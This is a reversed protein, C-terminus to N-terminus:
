QPDEAGKWQAQTLYFEEALPSLHRIMFGREKDERVGFVFRIKRDPLLERLALSLAKSGAPNHAVDLLVLPSERVVQLRGPWHVLNFGTHVAEFSIQWGINRMVQVALLATMGNRVQHRGALSLHFQGCDKGEFKVLLDTGGLSVKQVQWSLEEDVLRLPAKQRLCIRRIVGLPTKRTEACVVPIGEKVIGAKERAIKDLRTGLWQTHERSINTIVVVDPLLVNTADLRGGLGVEVVAVDVKRARFHEFAMATVAEFYTARLERVRPRVQKWLRVVGGPSILKGDVRIRERFDVLHPSTYLGVRFGAAQLVAALCAATSGKGNSGALHISPFTHHPDDLSKLLSFVNHLGLKIGFKGLGYLEQLVSQYTPSVRGKMEPKSM